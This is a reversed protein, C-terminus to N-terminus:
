INQDPFLDDETEIPEDGEFIFPKRIDEWECENGLYGNNVPSSDTCAFDRPENM